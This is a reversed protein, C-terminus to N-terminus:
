CIYFLIIGKRRLWPKITKYTRDITICNYYVFIKISTVLELWLLITPCKYSFKYGTTITELWAIFHISSFQKCIIRFKFSHFPIHIVNQVPSKKLITVFYNLKIKSLNLFIYWLCCLIMKQILFELLFFAVYIERICRIM